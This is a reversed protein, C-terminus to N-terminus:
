YPQMTASADHRSPSLLKERPACELDPWADQARAPIIELMKIVEYDQRFGFYPYIKRVLQCMLGNMPIAGEGSTANPDAGLDLFKQIMGWNTTTCAWALLLNLDDVKPDIKMKEVMELHGGRVAEELASSQLFSDEGEGIDPLTVRPNAGAWLLLCVWKLKGEKAHYRLALNLQHELEPIKERYGLYIGLHPRQAHKLARAFPQGTVADAGRDLFFKMIAPNYTSCVEAFDVKRVDAGHEVLLEIMYYKQYRLASTLLDDKIKQEVVAKLLVEVLSHFGSRLALEIPTNHYSEPSATRKGEAIWKQVAFLKGERVLGILEKIDEPLALKAHPKM